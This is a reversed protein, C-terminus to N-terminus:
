CGVYNGIGDLTLSKNLNVGYTCVATVKCVAASTPFFSANLDCSSKPMLVGDMPLIQFPKPVNWSFNTVLESFLM